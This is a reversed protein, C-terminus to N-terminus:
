NTKIIMLCVAFILIVNCKPKEIGPWINCHIHRNSSDFNFKFFLDRIMDMLIEFSIKQYHIITRGADPQIFIIKMHFIFNIYNKEKLELTFVSKM